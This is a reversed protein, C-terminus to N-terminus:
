SSDERETGWLKQVLHRLIKPQIERCLRGGDRQKGLRQRHHHVSEDGGTGRVRGYFALYDLPPCLEMTADIQSNLTKDPMYAALTVGFYDAAILTHSQLGPHPLFDAYLHCGPYEPPEKQSAHSTGKHKLNSADRIDIADGHATAVARMDDVTVPLGTNSPSLITNEVTSSM